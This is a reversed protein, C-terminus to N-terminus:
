TAYRVLDVSNRPAVPSSKMRRREIRAFVGVVPM